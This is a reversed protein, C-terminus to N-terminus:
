TEYIVGVGMRPYHQTGIMNAVSMYDYTATIAPATGDACVPLGILIPSTFKYLKM